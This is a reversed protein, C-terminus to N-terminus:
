GCIKKVSWKGLFLIIRRISQIKVDNMLSDQSYRDKALSPTPDTELPEFLLLVNKIYGDRLLPFSFKRRKNDKKAFLM